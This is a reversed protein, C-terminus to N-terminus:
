NSFLHFRVSGNRKVKWTFKQGGIVRQFLMYCKFMDVNQGGIVRQFLMDCRIMDVNQGGIVRQFCMHCKFM